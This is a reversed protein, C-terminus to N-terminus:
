RAAMIRGARRPAIWIRRRHLDIVIVHLYSRIFELSQNPNARNATAARLQELSFLTACVVVLL